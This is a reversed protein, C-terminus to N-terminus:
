GGGGGGDGPGFGNFNVSGMQAMPTLSRLYVIMGLYQDPQIDTWQHITHWNAMTIIQKDFYGGDPVVGHLIINILDGDSFGGTQEPTHAIDKLLFNTATVGHCTTCAPGGDATEFISGDMSMPRMMPPGMPRGGDAGGFMPLRISTGNNYRANGIQWDNATAPTITLQAQACYGGGRVTLTVPSSPATLMTLTWGTYGNVSLDPNSQIGVASQDSATLTVGSANVVMPLAYTHSPEYASYMPNFHLELPGPNTCSSGGSGGSPNGGEPNSSNSSGGSPTGGDPNSSNSSCAAIAGGMAGAAAVVGLGFAIRFKQTGKMAETM